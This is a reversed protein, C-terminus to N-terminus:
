HLILAKTFNVTLAARTSPMPVNWHRGYMLNAGIRDSKRRADENADARAVYEACRLVLRREWSGEEDDGSPTDGKKGSAGALAEDQKSPTVGSM